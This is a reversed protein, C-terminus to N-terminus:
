NNQSASKRNGFHQWMKIIGFNESNVIITKLMANTITQNNLIDDVTKITKNLEKEIM